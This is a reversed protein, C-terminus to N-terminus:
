NKEEYVSYYKLKASDLDKINGLIVFDPRRENDEKQINPCFLIKIKMKNIEINGAWCHLKNKWVGGLIAYTHERQKAEM